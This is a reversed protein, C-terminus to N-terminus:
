IMINVLYYVGLITTGVCIIWCIIRAWHLFKILYSEDPPMSSVLRIDYAEIGWIKITCYLVEVDMGVPYDTKRYSGTKCRQMVQDEPLDHLKVLLDCLKKTPDGANEYGTIRAWGRISNEEFNKKSKKLLNEAIKFAIACVLTVFAISFSFIIRFLEEFTITNMAELFGM